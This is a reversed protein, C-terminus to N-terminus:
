AQEKREYYEKIINIAQRRGDLVGETYAHPIGTAADRIAWEYPVYVMAEQIKEILEKM